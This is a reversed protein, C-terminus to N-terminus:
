TRQTHWEAVGARPQRVANRDYPLNAPIQVDTVV